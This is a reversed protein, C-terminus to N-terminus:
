IRHIGCANCLIRRLRQADRLIICVQRFSHAKGLGTEIVFDARQQKHLDPLQSGVIANFKAETMHLRRMVRQKQVFFPATVVITVDCRKEAGTEFLLPIDLVAMRAGMRQYQEIFRNEEAVVLPHLLAELQKKKEKDNFVIEGLSKRDVANKKVTGPFVKGVAEVAGGGEALLRHVIADASIVKAGLAALQAAVTSKGMGIGGTLGIVIM